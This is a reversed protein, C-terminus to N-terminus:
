HSTGAYLKHDYILALGLFIIEFFGLYSVRFSFHLFSSKNYSGHMRKQTKLKTKCESKIHHM